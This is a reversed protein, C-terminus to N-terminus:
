GAPGAPGAPGTRDARELLGAPDTCLTEVAYRIRAPDFTSAHFSASVQLRGMLQTIAFTVLEPHGPTSATALRSPLGPQWPLRELERLRGLYNVVMAPRPLPPMSDPPPPPRRCQARATVLAMTALPRGAGLGADLTAAVSAPDLADPPDLRVGVSFNGTLGAAGPLYRRNDVLVHLGPAPTLGAELLAARAAAFFVATRTVGRANHTRWQHLRSLLGPDSTASASCVDSSWRIRGDGTAPAPAATAVRAPTSRHARAVALLRGPSRGFHDALALALPHRPDAGVLGVPPQGDRARATLEALLTVVPRGDLLPHAVSLAVLNEGALVQFPVAPDAQDHLQKQLSDLDGATADVPVVLQDCFDALEPRPVPFWRTMAPGVPGVPRVRGVPGVPGSSQGRLTGPRHFIRHDPALAALDRLTARLAGPGPADLGALLVTTHTGRWGRDRGPMRTGMQRRLREAATTTATM